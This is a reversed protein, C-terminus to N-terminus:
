YVWQVRPSTSTPIATTGAEDLVARAYGASMRIRRNAWWNLGAYWKKLYGCPSRPSAVSRALRSM